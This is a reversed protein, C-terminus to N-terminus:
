FISRSFKGKIRRNKVHHCRVSGLRSCWGRVTQVPPSWLTQRSCRQSAGHELGNFCLSEQWLFRYPAAQLRKHFRCLQRSHTECPYNTLCKTLGARPSCLQVALKTVTSEGDAFSPAPNLLFTLAVASVLSLNGVEDLFNSKKGIDSREAVGSENIRHNQSSSHISPVFASALTVSIM